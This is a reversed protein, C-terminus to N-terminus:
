DRKLKNWSKFLWKVGDDFYSFIASNEIPVPRAVRRRRPRGRRDVYMEEGIRVAVYAQNQGGSAYSNGNGDSVSAYPDSGYSGTMMYGFPSETVVNWGAGVGLVFVTWAMAFFTVILVGFLIFVSMSLATAVMCYDFQQSLPPEAGRYTEIKNFIYEGISGLRTGFQGGFFVTESVYQVATALDPFWVVMLYLLNDLGDGLGLQKCNYFTMLEPCQPCPNTPVMYPPCIFELSTGWWIQCWCMATYKEVVRTLEDMLCFPLAPFAIPFPWYPVSIGASGYGPVLLSPTMLWCRPSYHWAVAPVLILWFISLPILQTPILIPPLFLTGVIFVIFLIVTVWAIASELGIGVKCNLNIAANSPLQGPKPQFHCRTWFKIWYQLGIPGAMYDENPNEIFTIINMVIMEIEMGLNTGLFSDIINLLWEGISFPVRATAHLWQQRTTRNVFTFRELIDPHYPTDMKTRVWHLSRWGLWASWTTWTEPTSYPDADLMEKMHEPLYERDSQYMHQGRQALEEMGIWFASGNVPDTLQRRKFPPLQPMFENACYTVLFVFQDIFGDMLLCNGNIIFRSNQARMRQAGSLYDRNKFQIRRMFDSANVCDRGINTATRRHHSSLSSLQSILSERDNGEYGIVDIGSQYRKDFTINCNPGVNFRQIVDRTVSGPWLGEKFRYYLRAVSGWNALIEPTWNLRFRNSMYTSFSDRMHLDLTLLNAQEGRWNSRHWNFVRRLHDAFRRIPQMTFKPALSASPDGSWWRYFPSSYYADAIVKRRKDREEEKAKVHPQARHRAIADWYIQSVSREQLASWVGTLGQLGEFIDGFARRLQISYLNHAVHKTARGMMSLREYTTIRPLVGDRLNATFQKALQMYHGTRWKYEMLDIEILATTIMSRKWRPHRLAYQTMDHRRQVWRQHHQARQSEFGDPNDRVAREHRAAREQLARAHDDRVGQIASTKINNWLTLPGDHRYFYDHPILANAENLRGGQIMKDMCDIYYVKDVMHLSDWTMNMCGHLHDDCTADGQMSEGIANLVPITPAGMDRKKSMATACMADDLHLNRCACTSIDYMCDGTSYGWVAALVNSIRDAGTEMNPDQYLIGRTKMRAAFQKRTEMAAYMEDSGRTTMRRKGFQPEAPLIPGQTFVQALAKFIDLFNGIITLTSCPLLGIGGVANNVCARNGDPFSTNTIPDNGSAPHGLTIDTWIVNPQSIPSNLVTMHDKFRTDVCWGEAGPFTVSVFTILSQDKGGALCQRAYALDGCRVTTGAPITYNAAFGHMQVPTTYATHFLCQLANNSYLEQCQYCLGASERFLGYCSCGGGLSAFISFIFMIVAAILRLISNSIQWAVSLIVILGQVVKGLEPLLMALACQFYRLLAMIGGDLKTLEPNLADCSVLGGSRGGDDFCHKMPEGEQKCTPYAYSATFSTCGPDTCAACRYAPDMFFQDHPDGPAVYVFLAEGMTKNYCCCLNDPPCVPPNLMSCVVSSDAILSDIPYSFFSVFVNALDEVTVGYSPTGTPCIEDPTSNCTPGSVFIGVFGEIFAGIKIISELGWRVGSKIIRKRAEQCFPLFIDFFCFSASITNCLSDIIPGFFRFTWTNEETFLNPGGTASPRGFPQWYSLDNARRILTTVSILIARGLDASNTLWGNVPGCFCDFGDFVLSLWMDVLGFFQCPCTSFLGALEDIIPILKGCKDQVLQEAPTLTNNNALTWPDIENCFVYDLFAYPLAPLDSCSKDPPLFDPSCRDNDIPAWSQWFNAIARIQFKTWDNVFFGIGRVICCIDVIPCNTESIPELPRERIPLVLALVQCVCTNVGGVGQDRGKAACVGGPKGFITDLVIDVQKIFGIDDIRPQSPDTRWFKIGNGEITALNVIGLITLKLLEIAFELITQGFCCVDFAGGGNITGGTLQSIPFIYRVFQCLCEVHELTEKFLEDIDRIFYGDNFYIFRPNDLALSKIGNIIVQIANAVTDAAKTLACCFDPQPFQPSSPLILNLLKCTCVLGDTAFIILKMLDKELCRKSCDHGTFYGWAVEGEAPFVGRILGDLIHAVTLLLQGGFQIGQRLFCALDFCPNPPEGPMPCGDIPAATPRSTLPPPAPILRGEQDFQPEEEEEETEELTYPLQEGQISAYFSQNVGSYLWWHNGGEELSRGGYSPYIDFREASSLFINRQVRQTKGPFINDYAGAGICHSTDPIKGQATLMKFKWPDGKRLRDKYLDDAQCKHIVDHRAYMETRKENIFADVDKMAKPLTKSAFLDNGRLLRERLFDPRFWRLTSNQREEEYVLIPTVRNRNSEHYRFNLYDKEWHVMDDLKRKKGATASSPPIFGVPTCKPPGCEIVQANDDLTLPPIQIGFNFIYAVCNLLSDPSEDAIIGIVAEWQEIAKAGSLLLNNQPTGELIDWILTGVAIVIRFLFETGSTVFNVLEVFVRKMCFGVVPVNDLLSFICGALNVVNQVFIRTDKQTDIWTFWDSASTTHLFMEYLGKNFDNLIRGINNTICCFNFNKLFGQDAPNGNPPGTPSGFDPDTNFCPKDEGTFDCIIRTLFICVCDILPKRGIRTVDFYFDPDTVPAHSNLIRVIIEKVKGRWVDVPGTNPPGVYTNPAPTFMNFVVIDVNVAVTLIVQASDVVICGFTSLACLIDTFNLRWPVFTDWLRQLTKEFAHTFRILFQCLYFSMDSFDPRKSPPTLHILDIVLPWLIQMTAAGFNILSEISQWFDYQPMLAALIIGFPPPPFPLFFPVTQVICCVDQCLCCLLLIWDDVFQVIAASLKSMDYFGTLFEGTAIFLVLGDFLQTWICGIDILIAEVGCALADPGLVNNFYGFVFWNVADWWCILPNYATRILNMIPLVVAEVAPNVYCRMAYDAYVVVRDHYRAWLLGGGFLLAFLFFIYSYGLMQYIWQFFYIIATVPWVVVFYVLAWLFRISNIFFGM